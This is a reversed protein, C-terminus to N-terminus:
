RPSHDAPHAFEEVYRVGEAARTLAPDLNAGPAAAVGVPNRQLLQELASGNPRPTNQIDLAVAQLMLQFGLIMPLAAIMVTGGPTVVGAIAHVTWQALGFALGSCFLVLGLLGFIAVPSVSYFLYRWFIRRVLGLFLRPPFSLFSRTLSLSSKEDGYCAPFPVDAVRAEVINLRILLDSEFFYRRSLDSLPLRSLIDARTAFFGNVPDMTHWYGSAVKTLFTLGINGLFRWKPMARLAAGHHFRCGKSHDAQGRLIPGLLQPIDAPNMQGDGDCKVIVDAGAKVAEQMGTVTAGGVGQNVEHRLLFVRPDKIKNVIQALNDPSADDVVFIFDIPEPMGAIVGEIQPAVKYAPVVVAIKKNQMM